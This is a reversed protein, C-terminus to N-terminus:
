DDIQRLSSCIDGALLNCRGVNSINSATREITGTDDDLEIPRANKISSPLVETPNLLEALKKQFHALDDEYHKITRLDRMKIEERDENDYLETMRGILMKTVRIRREVRELETRESTKIM